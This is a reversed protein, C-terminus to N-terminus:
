QGPNPQPAHEDPLYRPRAPPPPSAAGPHAEPLREVPRVDAHAAQRQVPPVDAPSIVRGPVAADPGQEPLCLILRRALLRSLRCAPEGVRLSVAYLPDGQANDRAWQGAYGLHHDPTGPDPVQYITYGPAVRLRRAPVGTLAAIRAIAAAEIGAVTRGSISPVSATWRWGTV